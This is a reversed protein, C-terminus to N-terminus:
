VMSVFAGQQGPAQGPQAVPVPKNAMASGAMMQAMEAQTIGAAQAQGQKARLHLVQVEVMMRNMKLRDEYLAQKSQELSRREVELLSELADFHAMKLELKRVQSEVVSTVLSHLSADEELALVHAKAAASGLAVIAAKEVNNRATSTKSSDEEKTAGDVDMADSEEVAKGKGEVAGQRAAEARKKLGKELEEISEGAAKAAVEKNVTAALFAIVSLVPNDNQSFPLKAYQLPGLDKQTAELFPDEIPLQLFHVICQEKTKSGVHDGVKDWDDEFMEIGELLLLTEQDSWGSEDSLSYPSSDLKIFDGSHLTSPFRGESYCVPCVAFEGRSKNLSSYRVPTTTTGCTHCPKIEVTLEQSEGSAAALSAATESSLRTDPKSPHSLDTQILDKRVVTPHSSPSRFLM